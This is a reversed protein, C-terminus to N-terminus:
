GKLRATRLLHEFGERYSLRERVCFAIFIEADGHHLKMTMNHLHESTGRPRRPPPPPAERSVFGHQAAIRDGITPEVSRPPQTTAPIGSLDFIKVDDTM